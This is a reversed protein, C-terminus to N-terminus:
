DVKYQGVFMDKNHLGFTPRQNTEDAAELTCARHVAARYDGEFEEVLEWQGNGVHKKIQYKETM